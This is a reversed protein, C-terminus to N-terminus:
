RPIYQIREYFGLENLSQQIDNLLERLLSKSIGTSILKLTASNGLSLSQQTTELTRSAVSNAMPDANMTRKFREKIGPQPTANKFHDFLAQAEYHIRLHRILITNVATQLLLPSIPYGQITLPNNKLIDPNQALAILKQTPLTALARLLSRKGLNPTMKTRWKLKEKSTLAIKFYKAMYGAIRMLSYKDSPAYDSDKKIDPWRWHARRSWADEAGYRMAQAHAEGFPWLSQMHPIDQGRTAYTLGRNPDAQCEDPVNPCFWLYHFHIRDRKEGREMVAIYESGPFRRQFRNKYNRFHKTTNPGLVEEYHHPALTLTHMIIFHQQENAELCRLLIRCHYDYARNVQTAAQLQDLYRKEVPTLDAKQKHFSWADRLDAVKISLTNRALRINDTIYTDLHETSLCDSLGREITKLMVEAQTAHQPSLRGSNIASLLFAKRREFYTLDRGRTTTREKAQAPTM